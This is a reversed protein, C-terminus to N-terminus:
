DCNAYCTHTRLEVVQRPGSTLWTDFLALGFLCLCLMIFMVIGALMTYISDM